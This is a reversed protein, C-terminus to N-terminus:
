PAAGAPEYRVGPSPKEPWHATDQPHALRYADWGYLSRFALNGKPRCDDYACQPPGGLEDLFCDGQKMARRCATCYVWSDDDADATIRHATKTEMKQDRFRSNM